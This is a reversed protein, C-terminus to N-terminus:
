GKEALEAKLRKVEASLMNSRARVGEMVRESVALREKAVELDARLTAVEGEDAVPAATTESKQESSRLKRELEAKEAEAAALKAELDRARKDGDPKKDLERIRRLAQDREKEIVPLKAAARKAVDLENELAEIRKAAQEDGESGGAGSDAAALRRNAEALRKETQDLKERVISFEKDAEDTAAEAKHLKAQLEAVKSRCDELAQDGAETKAMQEGLAQSVREDSELRLAEAQARAADAKTLSEQLRERLSTVTAHMEARKRRFARDATARGVMLSGIVLLVGCSTSVAAIITEPPM